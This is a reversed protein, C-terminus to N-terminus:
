FRRLRTSRRCARHARHAAEEKGCREAPLPSVDTAPYNQNIPGIKASHRNQEEFSCSVAVEVTEEEEENQKEGAVFRSSASHTESESGTNEKTELLRQIMKQLNTTIM